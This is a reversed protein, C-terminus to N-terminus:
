CTPDKLQLVHSRKVAGQIPILGPGGANPVYLTLWQDVPSTERKNRYSGLKRRKLAKGKKKCGLKSPTGKEEM